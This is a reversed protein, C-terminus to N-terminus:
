RGSLFDDPVLDYTGQAVEARALDGLIRHRESDRRTKYALVDGVYLRRHTGVLHFPLEDKELLQVLFQRSMGLLRSSEATTLEQRTQLITISQGARLDALLRLLFSYPNNPLSESKGDAGVIKADTDLIKRYIDFIERHEKFSTDQAEASANRAM